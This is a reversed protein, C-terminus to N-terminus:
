LDVTKSHIAEFVLKADTEILVNALHKHHLWSLAERLALTEAETPSGAVHINKALAETGGSKPGWWFTNLIKQLEEHLIKPLLFVSM